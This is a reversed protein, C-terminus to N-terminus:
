FPKTSPNRYVEIDDEGVLEEEGLETEILTVAPTERRQKKRELAGKLDDPVVLRGDQFDIRHEPSLLIAPLETGPEALASIEYAEVSGDQPDFQLDVLEGLADGSAFAVAQGVMHEAVLLLSDTEFQFEYELGATVGMEHAVTMVDANLQAIQTIPLLDEPGRVLDNEWDIVFAIVRQEFPDFYADTVAGLRLGQESTVPMGQMSMLSRHM